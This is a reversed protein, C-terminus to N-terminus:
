IPPPRSPIALQSPLLCEKRTATTGPTPREAAEVTEAASGKASVAAATDGEEISSMRQKRMLDRLQAM